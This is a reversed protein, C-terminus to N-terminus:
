LEAIVRSSITEIPAREDAAANLRELESPPNPEPLASMAITWTPPASWHERKTRM